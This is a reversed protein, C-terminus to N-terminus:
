AVDSSEDVLRLVDDVLDHRLLDKKLEALDKERLPEGAHERIKLLSEISGLTAGALREAAELAAVTRFVEAAAGDPSTKGKTLAIGAESVLQHAARLRAEKAFIDLYTVSQGLPPPDSKAKKFVKDAFTLLKDREKDDLGAEDVAVKLVLEDVHKGEQLLRYVFGALQRHVDFSFDGARTEAMIRAAAEPDSVLAVLLTEEITRAKDDIEVEVAQDLLEDFPDTVEVRNPLEVKM